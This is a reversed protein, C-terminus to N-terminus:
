YRYDAVLTDGLQCIFNTTVVNANVSYQEPSQRSGNYCLHVSNTVPTNVLTFQTKLGDIQGSLVENDAFNPITIATQDGNCFKGM